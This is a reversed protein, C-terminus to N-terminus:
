HGNAFLQFESFEQLLHLDVDAFGTESSRGSPSKWHTECIASSAFSM